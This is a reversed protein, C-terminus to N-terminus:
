QPPLVGIGGTYPPLTSVSDYNPVGFPNAGGASSIMNNIYDAYSNGSPNTQVSNNVNNNSVPIYDISGDDVYPDVYADAGFDFVSGAPYVPGLSPTYPEPKYSAQATTVPASVTTPQIDPAPSPISPTTFTPPTSNEPVPAYPNVQTDGYNPLSGYYDTNTPRTITPNYAPSSSIPEAYPINSRVRNATQYARDREEASVAALKNATNLSSLGQGLSQFGQGVAAQTSGQVGARQLSLANVGEVQYQGLKLRQSFDNDMIGFETSVLSKGLGALQNTTFLAQQLGKSRFDVLNKASLNSFAGEPGGYTDSLASSVLAQTEKSFKTFNGAALEAFDGQAARLSALTDTGGFIFGGLREFVDESKNLIGRKEDLLDESQGSFDDTFDNIRGEAKKTAKEIAKERKSAGFASFISGIASAGLAAVALTAM